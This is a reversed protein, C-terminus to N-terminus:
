TTEGREMNHLLQKINNDLTSASTVNPLDERGFSKTRDLHLNGEKSPGVLTDPRGKEYYSHGFSGSWENPFGLANKKTGIVQINDSNTGNNEDHSM